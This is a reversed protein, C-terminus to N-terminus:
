PTDTGLCVGCPHSGSSLLNGSESYECYNCWMVLATCFTPRVPDPVKHKKGTEPLRPTCNQESIAKKEIKDCAMLPLLLSMTVM